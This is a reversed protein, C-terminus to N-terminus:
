EILLGDSGFVLETDLIQRQFELRSINTSQLDTCAFGSDRLRELVNEGEKRYNNMDINMFDAEKLEKSYYKRILTNVLNAFSVLTPQTVSWDLLPAVPIKKGFVTLTEIGIIGNLKLVERDFKEILDLDAMRSLVTDVFVVGESVRGRELLIEHTYMVQEKPVQLAALAALTARYRHQANRYQYRKVQRSKSRRSKSRRSNSRPM